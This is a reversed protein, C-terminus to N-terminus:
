VDDLVHRADVIIGAWVRIKTWDYAAHDTVVVACDAEVLASELDGVSTMAMGDHNFAPVHPDHYQVEAGKEELLHSIDLAPSERVDSVDKKYAVGLVLVRSGKLLKEVENLADQVRQVWYEPMASNVEDALEIFRATFKLSKL